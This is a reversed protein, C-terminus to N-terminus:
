KKLGFWWRSWSSWSNRSKWQKQKMLAPMLLRYVVAGAFSVEGTKDSHYLTMFISLSCLFILSSVYQFVWSNAMEGWKIYTKGATILVTATLLYQNLFLFSQVFAEWFSIHLHSICM